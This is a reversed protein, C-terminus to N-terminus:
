RAKSMPSQDHFDREDGVSWICEIQQKSRLVRTESVVIIRGGPAVLLAHLMESVHAVSDFGAPLKAVENEFDIAHRTCKRMLEDTGASTGVCLFRHSDNIRTFMFHDNRIGEQRAATVLQITIDPIM